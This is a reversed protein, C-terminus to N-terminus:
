RRRRLLALLGLGGLFASSPEPIASYIGDLETETLATDYIRFDDLDGIWLQSNTNGGSAFFFENPNAAGGTGTGTTNITATTNATPAYLNGDIYFDVDAITDGPNIIAAVMHWEGDNLSLDDYRTFGGSVEFRLKGSDEIAFRLDSGPVLGNDPSWGWFYRKDAQTTRIWSVITKAGSGNIGVTAANLNTGFRGTGDFSIASTSAAGPTNTTWSVSTGLVDSVIGGSPPNATTTTGSGEEFDWQAVLAAPAATTLASALLVPIQKNKM